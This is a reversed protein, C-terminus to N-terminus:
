KLANFCLKWWNIELKRATFKSHKAWLSPNLDSDEQDIRAVLRAIILELFILKIDVARKVEAIAGFYEVEWEIWQDASIPEKIVGRLKESEERCNGEKGGEM